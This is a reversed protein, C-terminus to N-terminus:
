EVEARFPAAAALAAAHQAADIRGRILELRLFLFYTQIVDRRCYAHIESLRGTDWLTQVDAGDIEGKGPLGLLQALLHFGGKLPYAGANTLFDFLDYHAEHFRRRYGAEFYNPIVCGHRLAALELVPLDFRRGNFSVLTGRFRELRTWFESVIEAEGYAEAGLVEVATLMREDNVTGVVISVPVHFAMPFFDSGSRSRAVVEARSQEYAEEEGVEEGRHLVARVLAKDVRTEIDFVAFPV